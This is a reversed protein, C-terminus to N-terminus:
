EEEGPVASYGIIGILDIPNINNSYSIILAFRHLSKDGYRQGHFAEKYGLAATWWVCYSAQTETIRIIQLM